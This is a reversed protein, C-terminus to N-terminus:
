RQMQEIGDRRCVLVNILIEAERGLGQPEESSVPVQALCDSIVGTQRIDQAFDHTGVCRCVCSCQVTKNARVLFGKAKKRLTRQVEDFRM